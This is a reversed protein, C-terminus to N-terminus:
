VTLYPSIKEYTKDGIGKIEKIQEVSTYGGLYQRYAIIDTAKVEGIGSITMLQEATCTNLDLPYEVMVGSESIENEESVSQNQSNENVKTDIENDQQENINESVTSDDSYYNNSDTKVYLSTQSSDNEVRSYQVNEGFYNQSDQQNTLKSDQNDTKTVTYNELESVAIKPQSLAFCLLVCGIIIMGFGILIISQRKSSNM